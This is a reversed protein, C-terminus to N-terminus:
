ALMSPTTVTVPSATTISAYNFPVPMLGYMAADVFKPPKLGQPFASGELLM